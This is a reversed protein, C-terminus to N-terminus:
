AGVAAAHSVRDSRDMRFRALVRNCVSNAQMAWGIQHLRLSVGPDVAVASVPDAIVAVRRKRKREYSATRCTRNDCKLQKTNHTTFDRGCELCVRTLPDDSYGIYPRKATTASM